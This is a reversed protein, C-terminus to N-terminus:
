LRNGVYTINFIVRDVIKGMAYSQGVFWKLDPKYGYTKTKYHLECEKIAEEISDFLGIFVRKNIKGYAEFMM